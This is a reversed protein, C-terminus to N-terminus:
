GKGCDSSTGDILSRVVEAHNGSEALAKSAQLYGEALNHDKLLAKMWAVNEPPLKLHDKMLDFAADYDIQISQLLNFAEPNSGAARAIEVATQNLNNRQFADAGCNLLLQVMEAQGAGAAVMLPTAETDLSTRQNVDAGANILLQAKAVHGYAAAMHLPAWGNVSTQQLDAGAKILAAVILTSAAQESEIATLLGTYGGTNAVNPDAGHQLLFEVLGLHGVHIATLLPTDGWGDPRALYAPEALVRQQIAQIDGNQLANLTWTDKSNNIM